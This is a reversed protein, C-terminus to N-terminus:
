RISIHINDGAMNTQIIRLKLSGNSSDAGRAPNAPPQAAPAAVSARLDENVVNKGQVWSAIIQWEPDNPSTFQAGGGHWQDGGAEYRLPHILLPSSFPNGTFVKKRVAEFNRRSREETWTASGPPLIELRMAAPANGEGAGLAHCAYCRAHGARRALFIPEVHTRYFEFSLAAPQAPPQPTQQAPAASVSALLGLGIFLLLTRMPKMNDERKGPIKFRM